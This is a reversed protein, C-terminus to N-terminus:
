RGFMFWDIGQGKDRNSLKGPKDEWRNGLNRYYGDLVHRVTSHSQVPEDDMGGFEDLPIGVNLVRM